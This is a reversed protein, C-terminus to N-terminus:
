KRKKKRRKPRSHPDPRSTQGIEAGRMIEFNGELRESPWTDIRRDEPVSDVMRDLWGEEVNIELVQHILIGKDVDRVVLEPWDKPPGGQKAYKYGTPILKKGM